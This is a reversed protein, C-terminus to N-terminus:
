HRVRILVAVNEIEDFTQDFRVLTNQLVGSVLLIATSTHDRGGLNKKIVFM